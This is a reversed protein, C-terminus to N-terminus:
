KKSRCTTGRQEQVCASVMAWWTLAVLFVPWEKWSPSLSAGGEREAAGWDSVSDQLPTHDTFNELREFVEM